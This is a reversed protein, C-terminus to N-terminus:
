EFLHNTQKIRKEIRLSENRENMGDHLLNSPGLLHFESKTKREEVFEDLIHTKKKREL